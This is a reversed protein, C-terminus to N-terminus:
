ISRSIRELMLPSIRKRSGTRGVATDGFRRRFYELVEMKGRAQAEAIAAGVDTAGCELLVDVVALQNYRVALLLGKNLDLHPYAALSGVIAAWGGLIADEFVSQHLPVQAALLLNVAGLHGNRVARSFCGQTMEAGLSILEVLMPQHGLSSFLILTQRLRDPEPKVLLVQYRARFANVIDVWSTYKVEIDLLLVSAAYAMLPKQRMLGISTQLSPLGLYCIEVALQQLLLEM